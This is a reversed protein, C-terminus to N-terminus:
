RKVASSVPRGTRIPRRFISFGHEPFGFVEEISLFRLAIMYGPRPSQELNEYVCRHTYKLSTCPQTLQQASVNWVHGVDIQFITHERPDYITDFHFLNCYHLELLYLVM